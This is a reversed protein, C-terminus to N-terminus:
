NFSVSFSDHFEQTSQENSSQSNAFAMLIVMLAVGCIIAVLVVPITHEEKKLGKKFTSSWLMHIGFSAFLVAAFLLLIKVANTIDM